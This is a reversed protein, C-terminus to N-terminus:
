ESDKEEDFISIHVIHPSMYYQKDCCYAFYEAGNDPDLRNAVWSLDAGCSCQTGYLAEKFPILLGDDIVKM